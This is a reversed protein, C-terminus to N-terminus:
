STTGRGCEGAFTANVGAIAAVTMLDSYAVVIAIVHTVVAVEASVIERDNPIVAAARDGDIPLGAGPRPM